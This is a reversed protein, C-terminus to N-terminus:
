CRKPKRMPASAPLCASLVIRALPPMNFNVDEVVAHHQEVVVVEGHEGEADSLGSLADGGNLFM